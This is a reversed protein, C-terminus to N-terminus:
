VKNQYALPGLYKRAAKNYAKAAEEKTNWRTRYVCGSGTRHVQAVWKRRNKDWSVGRFGSTNHCWTGRADVYPMESGNPCVFKGHQAKAVTDYAAAAEERTRFSGCNTKKAGHTVEAVWRRNKRHWYVGKFGSSNTPQKGQNAANEGRTAVRLNKRRNNLTDRDKHDIELGDLCLGTSEAVVRHMLITRSGPQESKRRTRAAYGQTNHWKWQSLYKFDCNNVTAWTDQTLPITKM